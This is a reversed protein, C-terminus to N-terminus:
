TRPGTSSRTMHAVIDLIKSIDGVTLDSDDDLLVAPGYVPGYRSAIQSAIPNLPLGKTIGSDDCFLCLDNNSIAAYVHIRAQVRYCVVFIPMWVM